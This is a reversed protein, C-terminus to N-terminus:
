WAFFPGIVVCFLPVLELMYNNYLLPMNHKLDRYWMYTFTHTHSLFLSRSLTHTQTHTQTHSLTLICSTVHQKQKLMSLDKKSSQINTFQDRNQIKFIHCSVFTGHQLDFRHRNTHNPLIPGNQKFHTLIWIYIYIYIFLYIYTEYIYTCILIYIYICM